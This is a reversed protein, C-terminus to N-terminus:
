KAPLTISPKQRWEPVPETDEYQIRKRIFFNAIDNM